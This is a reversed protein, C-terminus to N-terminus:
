SYIVACVCVCVKVPLLTHPILDHHGDLFRFWDWDPMGLLTNLVQSSVNRNKQLLRALNKSSCSSNEQQQLSPRTVDPNLRHNLTALAFRRHIKLRSSSDARIIEILCLLCTDDSRWELAHSRHNESVLESERMKYTLENTYWHLHLCDFLWVVSLWYEVNRM